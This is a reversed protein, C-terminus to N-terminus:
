NKIDIKVDQLDINVGNDDINVGPVKVGNSDVRVGPVKIGNSDVRVGPVKVGNSDISIGNGHIGTEDIRIGGTEVTNGNIHNGTHNYRIVPSYGLLFFAIVAVIIGSGIYLNRRDNNLKPEYNEKPEEKKDGEFSDETRNLLYNNAIEKPSGLELCIEEESKGNEKGIMFHEEYDYLIETREKESIKDLSKEIERLFEDKNM